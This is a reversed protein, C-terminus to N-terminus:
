VFGRFVMVVVVRVSGTIIRVFSVSGWVFLFRFFVFVVVDVVRAWM